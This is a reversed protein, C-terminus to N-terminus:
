ALVTAAIYSKPAYMVPMAVATARSFVSPPDDHERVTAIIGPQDEREIRPNGARNLMIAEATIGYQTQAFQSKDGPLLFFMNEPLVRTNVGNVRVQTDYPRPTPLRYTSRVSEVQGPTLTPYSTQARGFFAEKYEDNQAMFAIVQSSTLADEPRGDGNDILYQIWAQEHTLIPALPDSWLVGATPSFGGALGVGFDAVLTLNNEDVLEFQRDALLDGAALEMRSRIAQVNAETDNYLEDILETDDSGRELALLITELEGVMLKQGVPPLMGETISHEVERRGFPTEADYARFQATGRYRSTSKIRYKVNNIETNPVIERTLLYDSPTPVARAFAIVDAPDVNALLNLM